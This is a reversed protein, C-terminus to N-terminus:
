TIEEGPRFVSVTTLSKTVVCCPVGVSAKEANWDIVREYRWLDLDVASGHTLGCAAIMEGHDDFHRDVGLWYLGSACALSDGRAVSNVRKRKPSTVSRSCM